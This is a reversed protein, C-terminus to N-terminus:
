GNGSSREQMTCEEKLVEKFTCDQTTTKEPLPTLSDSSFILFPLSTTGSRKACPILLNISRSSAIIVPVIVGVPISGIEDQKIIKDQTVKKFSEIKSVLETNLLM